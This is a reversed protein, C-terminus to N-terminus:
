LYVSIRTALGCETLVEEHLLPPCLEDVIKLNFAKKMENTHFSEFPISMIKYLVSSQFTHRLYTFYESIVVM